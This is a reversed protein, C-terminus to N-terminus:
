VDRPVTQLILDHVTMRSPLSILRTRCARVPQAPIARLNGVNMSAAITPNSFTGTGLPDPNISVLADDPGPTLNAGGSQFTVMIQGDPSIAVDSLNKGASNLIGKNVFPGLQGLGIVRAIIVNMNTTSANEFTCAVIGNAATIEPHDAPVGGGVAKFTKGGDTSLLIAVVPNGNVDLAVYSLFLNGFEDWAAWPDTFSGPLGDGLPGTGIM